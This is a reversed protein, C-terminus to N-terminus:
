VFVTLCSATQGALQRAQHEALGRVIMAEDDWCAVIIGRPVSAILNAALQAMDARSHEDSM